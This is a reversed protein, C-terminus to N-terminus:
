LTFTTFYIDFRLTQSAGAAFPATDNTIFIGQNVIQVLLSTEVTGQFFFVFNDTFGNVTAGSFTTSASPGALNPANGYQFGINGGGTYQSGLYFNRAVIRDIVVIKGAGPTSLNPLAIPAAFMNHMSNSNVLFTTFQGVSPDLQIFGVAGNAIKGSTVAQNVINGTNVSNPAIAATDLIFTNNIPDYAFQGQGGRYVIAVIDTLTWQFEGHQIAEIEDVQTNLYGAATIAALNDTTTIRVISPAVGWDRSIDTIAM